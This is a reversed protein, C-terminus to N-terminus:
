LGSDQNQRLKNLIMFKAKQFFQLSTIKLHKTQKNTQKKDLVSFSHLDASRNNFRNTVRTNVSNNSLTEHSSAHLQTQLVSFRSKSM